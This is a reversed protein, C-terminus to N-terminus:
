LIDSLLLLFYCKTINKTVYFLFSLPAIAYIKQFMKNCLILTKRLLSYPFLIFCGYVEVEVLELSKATRYM